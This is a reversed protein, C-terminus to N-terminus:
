CGPYKKKNTKPSSSSLSAQALSSQASASQKNVKPSMMLAGLAGNNSSHRPKPRAKQVKKDDDSSDSFNKDDSYSAAKKRNKKARKKSVKKSSRPVEAKESEVFYHDFEDLKHNLDKEHQRPFPPPELSM